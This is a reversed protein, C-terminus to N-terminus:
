ANNIAKWTDYRNKYAESPSPTQLNRFTDLYFDRDRARWTTAYKLYETEQTSRAEAEIDTGVIEICAVSMASKLLERDKTKVIYSDHIPLIPIDLSVFQNIIHTTINSDVNMLRIGQDSCLSDDLYPHKDIFANLLKELTEKNYVNNDRQFAKFATDRDKANIAILILQKVVKRQESLPIDACIQKKLDYRDGTLRYGAELALLTPHLGSYDIEDTPEGDILIERRMHKPLNQWFGGNWRGNLKWNGRSFIRRTFKQSQDIPILSKYASGRKPQMERVIFPYELKAVDVYHKSMLINYAQVEARMSCIQETDEYELEYTKSGDPSKDRLVICERDQHLNIENVNLNIDKFLSRLLGTPRYRTNRSLSPNEHNYAGKILDVYANEYLADFIETIRKPIHLANYRSNPKYRNNDRSVSTCLSPDTKWGVYLDAMITRLQKLPDSKGKNNSTPVLKEQDEPSFSAFIKNVLEKVAKHESWAHVNFLRSHDRKMEDNFDKL